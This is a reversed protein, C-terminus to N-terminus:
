VLLNENQFAGGGLPTFMFHDLPALAKFRSSKRPSEISENQHATAVASQRLPQKLRIVVM